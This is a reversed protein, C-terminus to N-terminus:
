LIARAHKKKKWQNQTSSSVPARILFQVHLNPFCILASTWAMHGSREGESSDKQQRDTLNLQLTTSRDSRQLVRYFALTPRWVKSGNTYQTRVQTAHSQLLSLLMTFSSILANRPFLLIEWATTACTVPSNVCARFGNMQTTQLQLCTIM